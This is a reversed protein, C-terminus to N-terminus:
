AVSGAMKPISQTFSSQENIFLQVQREASIGFNTIVYAQTRNGIEYIKQKLLELDNTLASIQWGLMAVIIASALLLTLLCMLVALGKPIKKGELWKCFPLFLTALVAGITLPIFFGKGYYLGAFVLLVILLKKVISISTTAM